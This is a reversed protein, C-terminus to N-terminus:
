VDTESSHVSCYANFNPNIIQYRSGSVGGNEVAGTKTGTAVSGPCLPSLRERLKAYTFRSKQQRASSNASSAPSESLLPYPSGRIESAEDTSLLRHSPKPPLFNPPPSCSYTPSLPHHTYTQSHCNPCYVSDVATSCTCVDTSILTNSEQSMDSTGPLALQPKQQKLDLPFPPAESAVPSTVCSRVAFMSIDSATRRYAFRMPSIDRFERTSSFDLANHYDDSDDSEVSADDRLENTVSPLERIDVRSETSQEATWTRSGEGEMDGEDAEPVTSLKRATSADPASDEGNFETELVTDGDESEEPLNPMSNLTALLSPAMRFPLQSTQISPGNTGGAGISGVRDAIASGFVAPLSSRRGMRPALGPSAPVSRQVFTPDFQVSYSNSRRSQRLVRMEEGTLSRPSQGRPLDSILSTPTSTTQRPVLRLTLDQAQGKSKSPCCKVIWWINKRFSRAIVAYIVPTMLASIPFVFVIFYKSEEASILSKSVTASYGVVSMPLWCIFTVIILLSLKSANRVIQWRKSRSLSPRFLSLFVLLLAATAIFIGFLNLTLILLIYSRDSESETVFPLCIGVQDYANVGIGSLPLMALVSAYVVGVIVLAVAGRLKKRDNMYSTTAAAHLRELTLAVLSYVSLQSSFIALFGATQCGSGKQWELASQYFSREGLTRIDVMAIFALYVGLLTNSFALVCIFLQSAEMKERAAIMIFLIAVNGLLTLVWVAWIAVRIPWPDLLNDCPNLPNPRPYCEIQQWQINRLTGSVHHARLNSLGQFVEENSTGIIEPGTTTTGTNLRNLDGPSLGTSPHVEIRFNCNGEWIITYNVNLATLVDTARSTAESNSNETCKPNFPAEYLTPIVNPPLTVEELLNPAVTTPAEEEETFNQYVENNLTSEWLCCHYAYTYYLKQASPMEHPNPVNHLCWLQELGLTHLSPFGGPPFDLSCFNNSSMNLLELYPLYPFAKSHVSKIENNNLWLWHLLTNNVFVNEELKRIRNFGMNLKRLATMYKFLGTPIGGIMNHYLTLTKMVRFDNFAGPAITTIQNHDLRLIDLKTLNRFVGATIETIQNHDLTLSILKKCGSLNPVRRINNQTAEIIVLRPNTTCLDEPFEELSGSVIHLDSLRPLYTMKPLRRIKTGDLNLDSIQPSESFVEDDMDRIPNGKLILASLATKNRLHEPGIYSIRNYGLDLQYLHSFQKGDLIPIRTLHNDTLDMYGIAGSSNFAGHAVDEDELENGNIHLEELKTLNVFPTSQIDTIGSHSLYIHEVGRLGLFDFKHVVSINNYDLYRSHLLSPLHLCHLSICM